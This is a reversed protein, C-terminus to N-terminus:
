YKSLFTIVRGEPDAIDLHRGNPLEDLMYDVNLKHLAELIDAINRVKFVIQSAKGFDEPLGMNGDFEFRLVATGLDFTVFEGHEEDIIRLLLVAKYFSRVIDLNNVKFIIEKPEWLMHM